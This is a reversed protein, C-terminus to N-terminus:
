KIWPRITRSWTPSPYGTGAVMWGTILFTRGLAASGHLRSKVLSSPSQSMLLVLRAQLSALAHHSLVVQPKNRCAMQILLTNTGRLFSQIVGDTHTLNRRHHQSALRTPPDFYVSLSCSMALEWAFCQQHTPMVRVNINSM